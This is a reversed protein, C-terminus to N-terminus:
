VPMYNKGANEKVIQMYAFNFIGGEVYLITPQFTPDPMLLPASPIGLIFASLPGSVIEYINVPDGDGNM